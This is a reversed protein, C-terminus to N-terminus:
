KNNQQKKDTTKDGDDDDKNEDKGDDLANLNSQSGEPKNEIELDENVDMCDNDEPKKEIDEMDDNDQPQM